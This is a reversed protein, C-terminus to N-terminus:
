AVKKHLVSSTEQFQELWQKISQRGLAQEGYERHNLRQVQTVPKTEWYWLMCVVKQQPLVAMKCKDATYMEAAGSDAPCDILVFM